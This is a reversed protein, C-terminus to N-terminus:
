SKEPDVLDLAGDDSTLMDSDSSSGEWNRCLQRGSSETPDQASVVQELSRSTKTNRSVRTFIIDSSAHNQLSAHTASQGDFVRRMLMEEGQKNESLEEVSGRLVLLSANRFRSTPTLARSNLANYGTDSGLGLGFECAVPDVSSVARSLSLYRSSSKESCKSGLQSTEPTQSHMGPFAGNEDSGFVFAQWNKEDEETCQLATTVPRDRRIISMDSHHASIPDRVGRRLSPLSPLSHSISSSSIRSQDGRGQTAHQSWDMAAENSHRKTPYDHLISSRATDSHSSGDSIALYKKWPGEDVIARGASAEAGVSQEGDGYAQHVYEIKSADAPDLDCFPRTEGIQHVDSATGGRSGATSQSDSFALRFARKDGHAHHTLRFDHTSSETQRLTMTTPQCLLELQDCNFRKQESAYSFPSAVSRRAISHRQQKEGTSPAHFTVRAQEPANTAAHLQFKVPPGASREQALPEEQDFLMSEPSAHSQTYQDLRTSCIDTMADTGIRIRIDDVTQRSGSGGLVQAYADKAPYHDKDRFDDGNKRRPAAGRGRTTRRRKGIKNKERSSLFRLSVPKSAGIGVWDQQTLLRKRNAELLKLHTDMEPTKRISGRLDITNNTHRRTVSALSDNPCSRLLDDNGGKQIHLQDNSQLEGLSIM